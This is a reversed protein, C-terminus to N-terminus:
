PEWESIGTITFGFTQEVEGHETTIWLRATKRGVFRTTDVAIELIGVENRQLVRM